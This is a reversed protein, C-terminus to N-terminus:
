QVSIKESQEGAKIWYMGKAYRSMDVTNIGPLINKQLLLKGDSSYLSMFVPASSNMQVQLVANTVPNGIITFISSANFRVSKIDSYSQKGNLDAQLIRYYNVGTLPRTHVYNYYRTNNSNGAAALVSLTQWSSNNTRHQVTFDKSNQEAATSWNLLVESNNQQQATFSLWQLPLPALASALSLENLTVSSVPNSLVYNNTADNVASTVATWTSGNDINVQLLSETLGNLETDDYDIQVTGTFANTTTNFKYARNISPNIPVNTLTSNKNLLLNSLTFDASPTLTLGDAHFITSSQVTLASSSGVSFIQATCQLVAFLLTALTTLKIM